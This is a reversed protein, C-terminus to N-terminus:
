HCACSALGITAINARCRHLIATAMTPEGKASAARRKPPVRQLLIGLSICPTLLCLAPSISAISPYACDRNPGVYLPDLERWTQGSDASVALGLGKSADPRVQRYAFLINGSPLLLLSPCQGFLDLKEARSWSKGDDSSYSRYTEKGSRMMALLRKDTLEIIDKEDQLGTCVTHWHPWTEGNDHSVFYGNRWFKEGARQGGGPIWLEGAVEMVRGYQNQWVWGTMPGIQKVDWSQGDDRSRMAYARFERPKGKPHRLSMAPALISGDSLQRPGHHTSFGWGEEKLLTRPENWTKRGDQSRTLRVVSDDTRWHDTGERYLLLLTGSNLQMLGPFARHRAPGRTVRIREVVSASLRSRKAEAAALTSRVSDFAVCSIIGLSARMAGSGLAALFERRGASIGNDVLM